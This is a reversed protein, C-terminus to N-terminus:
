EGKYEVIEVKEIEINELTHDQSNTQVKSIAQVVDMGKFVQGFVTHGRQPDFANYAGDLSPNGGQTQYLEKYVEDVKDMNLFSYGYYNLVSQKEKESMDKLQDYNAQMSQWYSPDVVPAQNVFFQSGNTNSGANAMSLSGTINVLKTSFEDEFEEKWISQGGSGDGNPDGGQIMFDSIVRHFTLVDYYGELALKKFNYVAKPAAEPFFRVYIDGMSTHIVAIQEGEEPVDLQQGLSLSEDNPDPMNKLEVLTDKNDLVHVAPNEEPKASQCGVLLFGSILFCVFRKFSKM